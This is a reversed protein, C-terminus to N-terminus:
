LRIRVVDKQCLSAVTVTNLPLNSHRKSEFIFSNIFTNTHPQHSTHIHIHTYTPTHTHPQHVLSAYLVQLIKDCLKAQWQPPAPSEPIFIYDAESALGAVLALYSHFYYHKCICFFFVCSLLWILFGIFLLFFTFLSSMLWLVSLWLAISKKCIHTSLIATMMM